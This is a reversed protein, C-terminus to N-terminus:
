QVKAQIEKLLDRVEKGEWDAIIKLATKNGTHLATPSGSKALYDYWKALILPEFKNKEM